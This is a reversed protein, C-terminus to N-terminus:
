WRVQDLLLQVIEKNGKYAAHQLPTMGHEDFVDGQFNNLLVKLESVNNKAVCDFVKKQLDVDIHEPPAM